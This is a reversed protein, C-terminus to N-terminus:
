RSEETLAALVLAATGEWRPLHRARETARRRWTRRLQDDQMWRRLHGSWQAPCTPDLAAGACPPLIDCEPLVDGRLTAEAATGAGVLAPIGHALAEAVVMAYTEAVSPLLLLDCSGWAAEMTPADLPGEVNIRGQLPSTAIRDRLAGATGDPPQPGVWRASWALDAVPALAELLLAHNKRLSFAAPTLLVPTRDVRREPTPPAPDTGPEAVVVQQVGYREALDHAAWGSTVVVGTAAALAAREGAALRAATVPDLGTEAPLPLHVLIWVARGAAVARTVVQPAACGILGDLLVPPAGPAPALLLQLRELDAATPHPWGGGIWGPETGWERTLRVGYLTGGSPGPLDAPAILVPPLGRDPRTM